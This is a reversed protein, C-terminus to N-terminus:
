SDYDTLNNTEIISIIKKAYDPDTSFGADQLAQAPKQYGNNAVLLPYIEGGGIQGGKLIDFYAYISDKWSRYITFKSVTVQWSGASYVSNELAIFSEGTQAKVAFLNHYKTSLLSTGYNSELVAQAIIISPRVSYYKAVTQTTPAIEKIFEEQTYSVKQKEKANPISSNLFLPIIVVFVIVTFIFLFGKLSFRAKM